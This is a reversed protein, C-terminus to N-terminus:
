FEQVIEEEVVEETENTPEGRNTYFIEQVYSQVLDWNNGIPLLVWGGGFQELPPNYLLGSQADATDLVHLSVSGLDTNQAIKYFLLAETLEMNSEVTEGFTDLLDSVKSVSEILNMNTGKEYAALIVKQQRKARAFDSGEGNTGQRSRAYQLATEGDMHQLGEDFHLHLFREDMPANEYGERPYRWDDFTNEVEIDVGGLLDIAQVFGQFDIRATYHIPIGLIESVVKTTLALGGGEYEYMDGIAYSANIKTNQKYLDNFAPIEVWLDRPLSLMSVSADEHKYSAIIITDALFGNKEEEGNVGEYTYGEVSRKDIGILLINTVGDDQKLSEPDDKLYSMVIAPGKFISNWFGQIQPLFSYLSFLLIGVLVASFVIKKGKPQAADEREMKKQFSERRVKREKPQKKRSLVPSSSSEDELKGLDVVDM